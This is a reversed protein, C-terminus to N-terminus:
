VMQSARVRAKKEEANSRLQRVADFEIKAQEHGANKAKELWQLASPVDKRYKLDLVGLSYMAPGYGSMAAPRLWRDAEKAKSAIDEKKDKVEIGELVENLHFAGVNGMAPPFGLHGAIRWWTIAKQLDKGVADSEGLYLNGLSYASVPLVHSTEAARKLLEVAEAHDASKTQLMHRALLYTSHSDGADSAEKLVKMALAEDRPIEGTNEIHLLMEAMAAAAKRYGKEHAGEFLRLAKTLNKPTKSTGVQFLQGLQFKAVPDGQKSAKLYWKAHDPMCDSSDQFQVLGM